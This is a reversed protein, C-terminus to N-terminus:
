KGKIYECFLTTAFVLVKFCMKECNIHSKLNLPLQAIFLLNVFSVAIFYRSNNIRRVCVILKMHHDYKYFGWKGPLHKCKIMRMNNYYLLTLLIVEMLNM